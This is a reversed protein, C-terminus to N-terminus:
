GNANAGGNARPKHTAEEINQTMARIAEALTPRTPDHPPPPPAEVKVRRECNNCWMGYTPHWGAFRGCSSCRPKKMSGNYEAPYASVGQFLGNRAQEQQDSIKSSM